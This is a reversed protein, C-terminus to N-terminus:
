LNSELTVASLGAHGTFGNYLSFYSRTKRPPSSDPRAANKTEKYFLYDAPAQPSANLNFTASNPSTGLTFAAVVIRTEPSNPWQAFSASSVDSVWVYTRKDAGTIMLALQAPDVFRNVPVTTAPITGDTTQMREMLLQKGVSDYRILATEYLNLKDDGNYDDLWVTIESATVKGVDRAGRITRSLQTLAFQGVVHLTRADRTSLSANSVASMMSAAAGAVIATTICALLLEVLTMGPRVNPINKARRM